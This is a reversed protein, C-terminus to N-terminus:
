SRFIPWDDFSLFKSANALVRALGQTPCEALKCVFSKWRFCGQHSGGIKVVLPNIRQGELIEDDALVFRALLTNESGEMKASIRERRVKSRHGGYGGHGRFPDPLRSFLALAHQM